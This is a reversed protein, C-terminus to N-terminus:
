EVPDAHAAREKAASLLVRESIRLVGRPRRVEYWPIHEPRAVLFELLAAAAGNIRSKGTAWNEVTSVSALDLIEALREQSWGIKTLALKFEDRNM